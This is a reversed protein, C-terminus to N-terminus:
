LGFWRSAWCKELHEVPVAGSFGIKFCEASVHWHSKSSAKVCLQVFGLVCTEKKRQAVFDADPKQELVEAVWIVVM